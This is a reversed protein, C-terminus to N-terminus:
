AKMYRKVPEYGLAVLLRFSLTAEGRRAACIYVETLGHRRAFEGDGGCETCARTLARRVDMEDFLEVTTM